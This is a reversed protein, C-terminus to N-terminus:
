VSRDDLQTVRVWTSGKEILFVRWGPQIGTVAHTM